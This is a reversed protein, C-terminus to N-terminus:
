DQGPRPRCNAGVRQLRNRSRLASLDYQVAIELMQQSDRAQEHEGATRRVMEARPRAYPQALFHAELVDMTITVRQPRM